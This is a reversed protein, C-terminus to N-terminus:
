EESPLIGETRNMLRWLSSDRRNSDFRCSALFADKNSKPPFFGKQVLWLTQLISSYLIWRSPEQIRLANSPSRIHRSLSPKWYNRFNWIKSSFYGVNEPFWFRYFADTPLSKRCILLNNRAYIHGLVSNKFNVPVKSQGFNKNDLFICRFKHIPARRSLRSSTLVANKNSKLPFFGKRELWKRFHYIISRFSNSKTQFDFQGM